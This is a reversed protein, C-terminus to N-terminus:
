NDMQLDRIYQKCCYSKLFIVKKNWSLFWETYANYRRVNHKGERIPPLCVNDCTVRANSYHSMRGHPRVGRDNRSTVIIVNATGRYRVRCVPSKPNIQVMRPPSSQHKLLKSYLHRCWQYQLYLKVPFNFLSSNLSAM